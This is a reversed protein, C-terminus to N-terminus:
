KIELKLFQLIKEINEIKICSKGSIYMSMASKTVGIHRALTAQKIGQDKMAKIISERIM